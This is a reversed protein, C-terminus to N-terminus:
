RAQAMELLATVTKWNRATAPEKVVRGIAVPLKARGMGNPLYLYLEAGRATFEEPAFRAADVQKLEATAPKAGYFLVHLQTGSADPYPNGRVIARLEAATRLVVPVAFGTVAGIRKSLDAALGGRSRSPHAFVVNGSQVYTRVDTGGAADVVSRLDAMALKRGTGVNVGRLLAVWVTV